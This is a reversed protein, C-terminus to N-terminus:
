PGRRHDGLRVPVRRGARGPLTGRAPPGPGAGGGAPPSVVSSTSHGGSLALRM